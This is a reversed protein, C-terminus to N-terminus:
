FAPRLGYKQIIERATGNDLLGHLSALFREAQEKSLKKRSLAIQYDAKQIEGINQLGDLHEREAIWRGLDSNMVVVGQAGYRGAQLKRLATPNDMELVLEMPPTVKEAIQGAMASTGAPGYVGITYGRLDEPRSYKLLGGKRAFVSYSTQVIPGSFYYKPERAPTRLIVFLGDVQGTDALWQARRWPHFKLECAIKLAACTRQVLDPFPGTAAGNDNVTFPPFDDVLFTMTEAPAARAPALACSFLALVCAARILKM